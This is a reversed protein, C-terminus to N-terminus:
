LTRLQKEILQKLSILTNKDLKPILKETNELLKRPSRSEQTNNPIDKVTQVEWNETEWNDYETNKLVGSYIDWDGNRYQHYLSDYVWKKDYCSFNNEYFETFNCRGDVTYEVLYDNPQPIVLREILSSDNTENIKTLLDQNTEIFKIFFQIDEEVVSENFYSAVSELIPDNLEIVSDYDEIFDEWEFGNEILKNSIFVLQKKPFRSFTSQDAM